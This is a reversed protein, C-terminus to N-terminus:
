QHNNSQAMKEWALRSKNIAQFNAYSNNAISTRQQRPVLSMMDLVVYGTVPTRQSNNHAKKLQKM